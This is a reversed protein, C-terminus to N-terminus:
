SLRKSIYDKVAGTAFYSIVVIGILYALHSLVLKAIEIDIPIPKITFLTILSFFIMLIAATISKRMEGQDLVGSLYNTLMLTGFFTIVCVAVVSFFYGFIAAGLALVVVDLIIIIAAIIFAVTNIKNDQM